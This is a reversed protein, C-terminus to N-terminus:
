AHIGHELLLKMRDLMLADEMKTFNIHHLKTYAWAILEKCDAHEDARGEAYAANLPADEQMRGAESAILHVSDQIQMEKPLAAEVAAPLAARYLSVAVPIQNMKLAHNRGPM